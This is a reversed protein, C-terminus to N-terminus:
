KREQALRSSASDAWADIDQRTIFDLTGPELGLVRHLAGVHASVIRHLHAPGGSGQAIALISRGARDALDQVLTIVIDALTVPDDQVMTGERGADELLRAILPAIRTAADQRLRVAVVANGDAFVPAAAEVLFARDATKAGSLTTLLARLRALAPAETAVIPELVAEWAGLRRELLASLVDAKAQFYHYFAGKSIGAAALIDAITVQDYGKSVILEELVDLIAERKRHYADPDLTRAM